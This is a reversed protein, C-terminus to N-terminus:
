LDHVNLIQLKKFLPGTHDRYGAHSILRIARKQLITIKETLDKCATGWAM